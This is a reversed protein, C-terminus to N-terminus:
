ACINAYFYVHSVIEYYYHRKIRGRGLSSKTVTALTSRYGCWLLTFLTPKRPRQGFIPTAFSNNNVLIPRLGHHSLPSSLLFVISTFTKPYSITSSTVYTPSRGAILSAIAPLTLSFTMCQLTPLLLTSTLLSTTLYLLHYHLPPVRVLCLPKPRPQYM